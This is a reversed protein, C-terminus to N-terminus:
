RRPSGAASSPPTRRRLTSLAALFFPCAQRLTCTVCASTESAVIEQVPLVQYSTPVVTGPPVVIMGASGDAAVRAQCTWTRPAVVRLIGETDAFVAFSPAQGSVDTPVLAAVTPALPVTTFTALAVTTPCAVAPLTM